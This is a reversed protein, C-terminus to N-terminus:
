SRPRPTSRRPRRTAKASRASAQANFRAVVVQRETDVIKAQTVALATAQELQQRVVQAQRQTDCEHEAIKRDTLTKMLEDPPGDDGVHGVAQEDDAVRLRRRTECVGLEEPAGHGDGLERRDRIAARSDRGRVGAVPWARAEVRQAIM